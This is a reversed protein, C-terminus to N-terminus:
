PATFVFTLTSQVIIPIANLTTPHFTWQEAAEVAARRLLAHGGVAVADIVRGQESITIQVEVSGSAKSKKAITPYLPQIKKIAAGQVVGESVRRIEPRPSKSAPPPPPTTETNAVSPPQPSIKETLSLPAGAYAPTIRVPEGEKLLSPQRVREELEQLRRMGYLQGRLEIVGFSFRPQGVMGKQFAGVEIMLIVKRDDPLLARVEVCAPQDRGEPSMEDGCESLQWYVGAHSGVMERFWDSLPRTPMEAELDSVMINQATKVAENGFTVPHQFWDSWLLCWVMGMAFARM